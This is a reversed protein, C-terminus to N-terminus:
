QKFDDNCLLLSSLFEAESFKLLRFDYDSNVKESSKPKCSLITKRLFCFYLAKITEPSLM